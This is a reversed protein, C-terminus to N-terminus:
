KKLKTHKNKAYCIRRFFKMQAAYLAEAELAWLLGWLVCSCDDWADTLPTLTDVAIPTVIGIGTKVTIPTVAGTYSEITTTDVCEVSQVSLSGCM